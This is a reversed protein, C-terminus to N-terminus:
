GGEVPVRVRTRRHEGGDLLHRAISRDVGDEAALLWGILYRAVGSGGVVALPVFAARFIVPDVGFYRGLGGAVGGLMRNDRDCTLRRIPPDTPTATSEM